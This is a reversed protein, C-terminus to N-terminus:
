YPIFVRNGSAVPVTQIHTHNPTYKKEEIYLDLEEMLEPRTVTLFEFLEGNPDKWDSGAAIVHSSELPVGLSALGKKKRAKNIKNYIWIQEQKSRVGSTCIMPKGFEARVENMAMYHYLLNWLHAKTLKLGKPNLEYMRIM